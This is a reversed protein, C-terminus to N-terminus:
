IPRRRERQLSPLMSPWPLTARRGEPNCSASETLSRGVQGDLGVPQVGLVRTEPAPQRRANKHVLAQCLQAGKVPSCLDLQPRITSWKALTNPQVACPLAQGGAALTGTGGAASSSRSAPNEPGTSCLQLRSAAIHGVWQFSQLGARPPPLLGGVKGLVHGNEHTKLAVQKLPRPQGSTLQQM